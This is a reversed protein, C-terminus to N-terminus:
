TGALFARVNAATAPALLRPDSPAAVHPFVTVRPHAWLPSTAPLPEDTFVDLVADSLQGGDLAAILDAVVVHAGRGVNVVSSGPPMSRFSVADLIGETESTLPLLNVVIDSRSLVSVLGEDGSVVPVPELRYSRGWAVVDFGHEALASAAAGGLAGCGLLGVRRDGPPPASVPAWDARAQRRRLRPVGRHLMLTAMLVFEAMAESLVPAVMRAIPVDPADVVLRDIGAWVSQVFRLRPYRHLTHGPPNGVVLILPRSRDVDDAPVVATDPLHTALESVWRGTEETSGLDVAVIPSSGDSM